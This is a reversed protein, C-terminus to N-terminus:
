KLKNPEPLKIRFDFPIDSKTTNEQVLNQFNSNINNVNLNSVSKSKKKVFHRKIYKITEIGVTSGLDKSIWESYFANSFNEEQFLQFYYHYLAKKRKSDKSKVLQILTAKDM